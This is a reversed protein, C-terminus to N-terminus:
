KGGGKEVKEKVAQVYSKSDWPRDGMVRVVSDKKGIEDRIDLFRGDPGILFTEPFGTVKYVDPISTERDRLIPFTLGKSAIFEKVQDDHESDDVNVGLIMFNKEALVKSLRELSAMEAVCPVCWTAWFNLLVTKGRYEKLSHQVGNVDTLTFDPAEAGLSFDSSPVSSVKPEPASPNAAVASEAIEASSKGASGSPSDSGKCAFACACLAFLSLRGTWSFFVPSFYIKRM